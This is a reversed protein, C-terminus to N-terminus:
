PEHIAAWEELLHELELQTQQYRNGLREVEAIAAPPNELQRALYALESELHQIRQEVDELQKQRRREEAQQRNRQRIKGAHEDRRQGNGQEVRAARERANQKEQQYQNYTGEFVVLTEDRSSVEWIQTALANILYRDHSVLLITGQFDDLVSQLVEQSPIDLHNTPEDLLLLNASSLALRALALRGREGGSLMSVLKFVDDGGFLYRALYNRIEGPLMHPAVEEIEQMLTNGPNLGEHAQAFYGIELSAGLVVEGSLPELQGLITKLFTTKGAGNPGILAACELRRLELDPAEFLPAGPYGVLLNRTRLVLNGSRQRSNLNLRLHVPRNEPKRLARLRREAEEVGMPSTTTSVEGSIELWSRGVVGDIGVQEIAQIMRSARKLKGKAQITNQGAINRRVYDLDKGLQEIEAEFQQRRLEWRATRQEVYATYNGRYTEIGARSMEWIANCVRDLFYRDHSVILVGGEYQSLYNELWEVASIDLHNTPEDLVLLDPQSLLLRALVARTRQGGSLHMLPMGYDDENFGLGSLVQRILTPYTYGGRHEFEVQRSGYRVLADEAHAPDAMQRELDALEAELQRLESFVELCEEWLTLDSELVSEQPLYGLRLGRARHVQGSSPTDLGALIRLLTTKGIGNPGVIAIRARPPIAFSLGTFLDFAGFSKSLQTASILSM